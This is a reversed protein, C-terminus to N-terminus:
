IKILRLIHEKIRFLFGSIHLIDAVRGRGSENGEWFVNTAQCTSNTGISGESGVPFFTWWFAAVSVQEGSNNLSCHNNLKLFNKVCTTDLIESASFILAQTINEQPKELINYKM